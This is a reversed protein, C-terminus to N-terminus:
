NGGINTMWGSVIWMELHQMSFPLLSHFFKSFILIEYTFHLHTGQLKWLCTEVFWVLSSIVEKDTGFKIGKWCDCKRWYFQLCVLSRTFFVFLFFYIDFKISVFRDSDGLESNGCIVRQNRCVVVYSSEELILIWIQHKNRKFMMM